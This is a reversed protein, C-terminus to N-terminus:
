VPNPGIIQSEQSCFQVPDLKTSLSLLLCSVLITLPFQHLLLVSTISSVRLVVVLVPVLVLSPRCVATKSDKSWDVIPSLVTLLSRIGKM